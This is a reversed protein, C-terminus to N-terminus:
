LEYGMSGMGAIAFSGTLALQLWLLRDDSDHFIFGVVVAVTCTYLHALLVIRPQALPTAPLGYLITALAGFSPPLFFLVDTNDFVAYENWKDFLLVTFTIALFAGLWTNMCEYLGLRKQLLVQGGNFKAVYEVLWLVVGSVNAHVRGHYHRRHEKKPEEIMKTPSKSFKSRKLRIAFRVALILVRFNTRARKANRHVYQYRQVMLTSLTPISQFVERLYSRLAASERVHDGLYVVIVGMIHYGHETRDVNWAYDTFLTKSRFVPITLARDFLQAAQELGRGTAQYPDSALAKLDHIQYSEAQMAIGPLGVGRVFVEQESTRFAM